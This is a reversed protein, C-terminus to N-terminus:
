GGYRRPGLPPRPPARVADTLCSSIWQWSGDMENSAPPSSIVGKRIFTAPVSSLEMAVMLEALAEGPTDGHAACPRLDPAEAIWLSDEDSWYVVIAYRNMSVM